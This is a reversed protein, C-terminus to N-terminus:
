KITTTHDSYYNYHHDTTIIIAERVKVQVGKEEIKVAGSLLLAVARELLSRMSLWSAKKKM